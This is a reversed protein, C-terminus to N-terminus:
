VLQIVCRHMVGLEHCHNVVEVMKRFIEAAQLCHLSGAWALMIPAVPLILYDQIGAAHGNASSFAVCSTWAPPAQLQAASIVCYQCRACDATGAPLVPVHARGRYSAAPLLLAISKSIFVWCADVAFYASTASRSCTCAAPAVPSGKLQLAKRHRVV